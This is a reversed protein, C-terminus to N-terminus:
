AGACPRAIFRESVCGARARVYIYARTRCRYGCIYMYMYVAPQPARLTFPRTVSFRTLRHMVLPPRPIDFRALFVRLEFVKGICSEALSWQTIPRFNAGDREYTRNSINSVRVRSLSLSPSSLVPRAM